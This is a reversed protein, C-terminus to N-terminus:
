IVLTAKLQKPPSLWQPNHRPPPLMVAAGPTVTAGPGTPIAPPADVSGVTRDELGMFPAVLTSVLWFTPIAVETTAMKLWGIFGKVILEAGAPLKNVNVSLSVVPLLTGPVTLMFAALM